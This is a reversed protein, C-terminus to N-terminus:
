NEAPAPAPRAPAAAPLSFAVLESGENNGVAVVIFQRGNITYTMPGGTAQAPLKLEAIVAGTKKDIARFSTAAPAFLLTKTVLLPARQQGGLKTMDVGAAKLTANNKIADTPEGNPIMWAHDGTNLDIATIRGWPPKFLPLGQPGLPRGLGPAGSIYQMTSRKEDHVLASMYPATVSPIYLYGTEPDASAGQWNAGGGAGPLQITGLKGGNSDLVIPPTYVPGTRYQSIIKLAEAKLEPTFDIINDPSVGQQDFPAPKTPIPQTKSTWEGPVDTQPVPKEDIPFVPTGNTRDFVYTFATKSVVAVAKITKGNQHLDLLVPASPIDADWIDHHIIQYHWVRKGTKADLCVLSDSFLNAGPRHGGYVDGTPAEVPIYVYGLEDDGSLPGWAGTNGTYKWSDKEWTDNGFEGAQPITHFTWVLKGTHVDYGRIYGPTNEFSKPSAGVLLAAGVVITDRVIIAPSTAGITGPQVKGDRDLGLWLDVVGNNGFTKIPQGTKADVEFLQYGPSIVALREDSNPGAANDTWYALGRNNQRVAGRNQENFRYTWITEGTLPDIAAVVRRTGATVYMVGKVMLPTIEWNADPRPSFNHAKWRWAPTLTKVNAANIQDLPSYKTQGFDGGYNRWEGNTTGYQAFAPLAILAALPLLLATKM